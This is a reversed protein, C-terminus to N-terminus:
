ISLIDTYVLNLAEAVPAFVLKGAITQVGARIAPNSSFLVKLDTNAIAIAFQITANTLAITSTRPVVGSM